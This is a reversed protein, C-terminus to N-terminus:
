PGTYAIPLSYSATVPFFYDVDDGNVTANDTVGPQHRRTSTTTYTGLVPRPRGLPWSTGAPFRAASLSM